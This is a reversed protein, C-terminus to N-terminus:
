FTAWVNMILGNNFSTAGDKKKENCLCLFHKRFLTLTPSIGDHQSKPTLFDTLM